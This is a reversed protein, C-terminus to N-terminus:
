AVNLVTLVQIPSRKCVPSGYLPSDPAANARHQIADHPVSRINLGEHPHTRTARAGVLTRPYLLAVVRDSRSIPIFRKVPYEKSQPRM